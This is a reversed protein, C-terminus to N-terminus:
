KLTDTMSVSDTLEASFMFPTIAAIALRRFIATGGVYSIVLLGEGFESVLLIGQIELELRVFLM